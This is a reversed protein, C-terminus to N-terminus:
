RRLPLRLVVHARSSALDRLVAQLPLMKSEWSCSSEPIVQLVSSMGFSSDQLITGFGCAFYAAHSGGKCFAQLSFLCLVVNCSDCTTAWDAAATEGAAPSNLMLAAGIRMGSPGQRSTSPQTQAGLPKLACPPGRALSFHEIIDICSFSNSVYLFSTFDRVGCCAFTAPERWEQNALIIGPQLGLWYVQDKSVRCNM